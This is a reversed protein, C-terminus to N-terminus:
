DKEIIEERVRKKYLDLSYIDPKNLLAGTKM